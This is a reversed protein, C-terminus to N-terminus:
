DMGKPFVMICRFLQLTVMKQIGVPSIRIRKSNRFFYELSVRNKVPICVSPISGSTFSNNKVPTFSIINELLYIRQLICRPRIAQKIITINNVTFRHIRKLPSHAVIYRIRDFSKTICDIKKRFRNKEPISFNTYKIGSFCRISKFLTFEPNILQFIGPPLFKCRYVPPKFLVQFAKFNSYRNRSM